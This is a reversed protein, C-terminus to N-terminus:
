SADEKDIEAASAGRDLLVLRYNLSCPANDSFPPNPAEACKWASASGGPAVDEIWCASPEARSQTNM